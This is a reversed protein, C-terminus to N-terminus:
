EGALSKRLSAIVSEVEPKVERWIAFSEAAQGVLMGLGDILHDSGQEKAWMLFPTLERGYVMDYCVVDTSIIQAPISPVQGSLSASTANIIIDFDNVVDDFGCATLKSNNKDVNFQKCISEAKSVTRNAVVIMQPHCELLPLIVGKAAGGAGLLLIRSNKLKVNNRQLDQVLGLGDTNDGLIQGDIFSLTNVAGALRARESLQDCIALAQEKFPVTINAGKGQESIFKRIKKDFGDVAVLESQYNLQQETEKAFYQHIFPSRSQKIPNGYVRYQDM